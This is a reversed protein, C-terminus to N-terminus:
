FREIAPLTVALDDFAGILIRNRDPDTLM